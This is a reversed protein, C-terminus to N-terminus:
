AAALNSSATDAQLQRLRALAEAARVYRKRKKIPSGDEAYWDPFVQHIPIALAAAINLEIRASRSKREIVSRVSKETVMEGTRQNVCSRAIEAVSLGSSRLLYKIIQADM